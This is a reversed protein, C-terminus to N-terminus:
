GGRNDNCQKEGCRCDCLFLLMGGAFVCIPEATSKFISMREGASNAPPVILELTTVFPKDVPACRERYAPNEICDGRCQDAVSVGTSAPSRIGVANTAARDTRLYIENVVAVDFWKECATAAKEVEVMRHKSGCMEVESGLKATTHLQKRGAAVAGNIKTVLIVM